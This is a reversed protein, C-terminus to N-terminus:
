EKDMDFLKFKVVGSEKIKPKVDAKGIGYLGSEKTKPKLKQYFGVSKSSEKTQQRVPSKKINKSSLKSILTKKRPSVPEPTNEISEDNYTPLEYQSISKTKNGILIEYENKKKKNDFYDLEVLFIESGVFAEHNIGGFIILKNNFM